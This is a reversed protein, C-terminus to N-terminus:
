HKFLSLKKKMNVLEKEADGIRIQFEKKMQEANASRGFFNINRKWNYINNEMELIKRKIMDEKRDIKRDDHPSNRLKSVQVHVKLENIESNSLTKNGLLRKCIKDYRGLIEGVASRPVFGTDSFEDLLDCVKNLDFVEDNTISELRTLISKKNELNQEFKENQELNKGRKREFFHDCHGKFEEYLLKEFKYPVPGVERWQNQLDKLVNTTPEWELSERVQQAKEVLERKKALNENKQDDLKQFFHHKHAFFNKISRWFHKNVDKALERSVSGVAEWQKQLALLEKTKSNWHKIKDADFAALEKAREALAIKKDLNAKLNEKKHKNYEKQKKYVLSSASKLRQWLAEQDEPPVPGIHKFEKHLENLRAIAQTISTSTDLAEAQKCLEIKASLNKKRDLEKLEFYISRHDYFRNILAHYNAWLSHNQASPIIGVNKWEEQIKKVRNFSEQNEGDIIERLLALIKNKKILNTDKEKEIEQFFQIRKCQLKAFLSHFEQDTHDGKFEFDAVDSDEVKLFAALAKKRESQFNMDFHTGLAKLVSDTQRIDKEKSIKKLLNLQKIKSMENLDFSEFQNEDSAEDGGEGLEDTLEITIKEEGGVEQGLDAPPTDKASEEENCAEETAEEQLADTEAAKPTVGTEVDSIKEGVEETLHEIELMPNYDKPLNSTSEDTAQVAFHTPTEQDAEEVQAIETPPIEKVSDNIEQMQFNKTASEPLVSKTENSLEAEWQVAEVVGERFVGKKDKEM